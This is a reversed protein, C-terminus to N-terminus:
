TLVAAAASLKLGIEAAEASAESGEVIGAGAFLDIFSHALLAGRLAIAFSGDGDATMIGIPGAYWGRDFGELERQMAGAVETPTGGVAPTPHLAGVLELVHPRPEALSGEIATSLHEVPGASTAVATGTRLDSCFPQLAAVVADAVLQQERHAKDTELDHQGRATTGAAPASRITVGDRAILLEPSAGIFTAGEMQVGYAFCEPYAASMRAAITWASQAAEATRRARRALVVKDLKGSAIASLATDVAVKWDADSPTMEDHAVDASGGVVIDGMTREVAAAGQALVTALHDGAAHADGAFVLTSAVLWTGEADRIACLEPIWTAANPFGTWGETPRADNCAGGAFAIPARGEMTAVDFWRTASAALSDFRDAGTAESLAAVGAGAVRIGGASWWGATAPDLEALLLLPDEFAFPLGVSALVPRGIDRARDEAIQAVQETIEAVPIQSDNM